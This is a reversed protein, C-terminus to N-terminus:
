IILYKKVEYNKAFKMLIQNALENRYEIEQEISKQWKEKSFGNLCKLNLKKLTSKIKLLHEYEINKLQIARANAPQWFMRTRDVLHNNFQQM